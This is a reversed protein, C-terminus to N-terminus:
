FLVGQAQHRELRKKGAEFYDADIEYLDLDYGMIDCAIAISMSGGHTDLITDGPKAYNKLLWQYLKIPKQTPHIKDRNPYRSDGGLGYAEIRSMRFSKCPTPFSTYALEFDAGTFVQMKDWIIFCSSPRLFHIFYNAGWIIQNKSVRFLEDFYKREPIIDWGKFDHEKRAGKSAGKNTHQSFKQGDCGIGYPPDVIALEYAKDSMGRIAELCDSNYLNIKSM